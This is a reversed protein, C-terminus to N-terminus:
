NIFENQVLENKIFNVTNDLNLGDTNVTLNSLENGYNIRDNYISILYIM